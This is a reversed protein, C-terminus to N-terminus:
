LGYVLGAMVNFKRSNYGVADFYEQNTLNRLDIFARFSNASVTVQISIWRITLLCKM